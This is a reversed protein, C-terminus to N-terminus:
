FNNSLYSDFFIQFRVTLVKQFNSNQGKFIKFNLQWFTRLDDAICMATENWGM